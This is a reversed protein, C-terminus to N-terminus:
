KLIKLNRKQNLCLTSGVTNTQGSLILNPTMPIVIYFAVVSVFITKGRHFMGRDWNTIYWDKVWAVAKNYYEKIM